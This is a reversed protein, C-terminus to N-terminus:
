VDKMESKTSGAKRSFDGKPSTTYIDVSDDVSSDDGGKDPWCVIVKVIRPKSASDSSRPAVNGFIYNNPLQIRAFEYGYADGVKWDVSEGRGTDKFAYALLENVDEKRNDSQKKFDRAVPKEVLYQSDLNMGIQYEVVTSYVLSYEMDKKSYDMRYLRFSDGRTLKNRNEALDYTDNLDAFEDLLYPKDVGTLRGARRVAIAFGAAVFDTGESDDERQVLDNYFFVMTPTLDLCARAEAISLISTAAAVAGRDAMGRVVGFYSGISLTAMAALIGVVVLLEVLTFARKTTLTDMETTSATM